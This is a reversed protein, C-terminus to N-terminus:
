IWFELISIGGSAHGLALKNGKVVFCSPRFETPLWLVKKGDLKIWQDHEISIRINLRPSNISPMDGRPQISLAGVDTNLCSSDQSFELNTVLREVPWNQLLAGTATDWLRVTHDSSGSALFRGDPSFIVSQIPGSHGELTQELAGTATNWLRLTEDNSGSALLRDDPSFAVSQVSGSHGEFKQEPLGTTSNWLWVIQDDSASALLRGDGSFAVSRVPGAQGELAQLEAIWSEDVQTLRSLWMPIDAAFERRIISTQPAFILGSCYLQSPTDDAIRRNKLVFQKADHLFDSMGSLPNEHIADLLLNLTVLVESVLGLISMAEVWHLFHKKLFLFAKHMADSIDICQMLHIAWYRSAYKLESSFYNDITLNDIEARRTGYSPLVCSNKRLEQCILLCNITLSYNTEKEDVWFPTKQRTDPDLLFDRFSQHFLQVPMNIDNPVSLVSHLLNLRLVILREPLNLLRSLSVVSLPSRLVLIAGVVQVLEKKQKEDKKLLRSLVPLYMRDFLSREYQYALIEALSDDPHCDPDEFLRCITSAFIFYPVSLAVLKQLNIDGPWGIPLKRETRIESLRHHLFLSIDHEIAPLPIDHLVLDQYNDNLIKSFGLRISLEPRSALFVRLRVTNLKQLQPLLELIHRIESDGECEDLADIVIVQTQIPRGSNVLSQIPQLILKDLQATISKATIGTDDRVIKQLAPIMEPISIALQRAITSFFKSANGRNEKARKFFFSAGLLGREKFLKAVTRSVTSKGTVAMGKLWFICKGQPSTAWEIIERILETRTGPFCEDHHQDVYSEFVAENVIPIQKLEMNRDIIGEPNMKAETHSDVESRQSLTTLSLRSSADAFYDNKEFYDFGSPEENPDQTAMDYPRLDLKVSAPDTSHDCIDDLWSKITKANPVESNYTGPPSQAHAKHQPWPLSRLAFDHTHQLVHDVLEPADLPGSFDCLPCCTLGYSKIAGWPLINQISDMPLVDAHKGQVHRVLSELESFIASTHDCIPCGWRNPRHDAKVHDEWDQRTCYLIHPTPCDDAICTYPRIDEVLHRKWANTDEAMTAPQSQCCCPCKIIKSKRFDADLRKLTPYQVAAAIATIRTRSFEAASARGKKSTPITGVTSAVTSLDRFTSKEDTDKVAYSSAPRSSLTVSQQPVYDEAPPTIQNEKEITSARPTWVKQPGALKESHRQACLFWYRRRLNANILRTQLPTLHHKGAEFNPVISMWDEPSNPQIVPRFLADDTPRLLVICEFHRRLRMQRQNNFTQNARRLRSRQGTRRIVTALLALSEIVLDVVDMSTELECDSNRQCDTLTKKLSSLLHKVTSLENPMAQLRTDLSANKGATLGVGAAWLNFDSMRVEAWKEHMLSSQQMCLRFERHISTALEAITTENASM